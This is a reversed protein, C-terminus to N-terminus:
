KKLLLFISAGAQLILLIPVTVTFRPKRTKHRALIMGLFIGCSGGFIALMFLAVEPVRTRHIIAQRKDWLMIGLSAANFLILIFWFLNM